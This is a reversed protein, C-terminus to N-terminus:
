SSLNVTKIGTWRSFMGDWCNELTLFWLACLPLLAPTPIAATVSPNRFCCCCLPNLQLGCCVRISLFIFFFCWETDKELDSRSQCSKLLVSHRVASRCHQFAAVSRTLHRECHTLPCEVPVGETRQSLFHNLLGLKASVEFPNEARFPHAFSVLIPKHQNM